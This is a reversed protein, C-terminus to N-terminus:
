RTAALSVQEVLRRRDILSTFPWDDHTLAVYSGVHSAVLRVQDAEPKGLLENERIFSVHLADGFMDRVLAGDL